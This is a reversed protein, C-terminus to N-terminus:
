PTYTFRLEPLILLLNWMLLKKKIAQRLPSIRVKAKPNYGLMTTKRFPNTFTLDVDLVKTTYLDLAFRRCLPINNVWHDM